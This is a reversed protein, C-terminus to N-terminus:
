SDPNLVDILGKSNAMGAHQSMQADVRINMARVITAAETYWIILPIITNMVAISDMM